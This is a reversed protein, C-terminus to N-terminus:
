TRRFFFSASPALFYLPFYLSIFSLHAVSEIALVSAICVRVQTWVADSPMEKLVKMLKDTTEVIDHAAGGSQLTQLSKSIKATWVLVDKSLYSLSNTLRHQLNVSLVCLEAVTDRGSYHPSFYSKIRSYGDMVSQIWTYLFISKLEGAGKSSSNNREEVLLKDADGVM